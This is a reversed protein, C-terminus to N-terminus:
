LGQEHDTAIADHVACPVPALQGSAARPPFATPRTAEAAQRIHRRERASRCRWWTQRARVDRGQPRSLDGFVPHEGDRIRPLSYAYGCPQISTDVHHMPTDVPCTPM